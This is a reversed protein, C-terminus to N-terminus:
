FFWMNGFVVILCVGSLGTDTEINLASDAPPAQERAFNPIRISSASLTPNSGVIAVLVMVTKSVTGILWEPM